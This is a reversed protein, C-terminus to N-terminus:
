PSPILRWDTMLFEPVYLGNSKIGLVQNDILVRNGGTTLDLMRLIGNTGGNDDIAVANSSPSWLFTGTVHQVQWMNKEEGTRSDSICFVSQAGMNGFYGIQKGDPSWRVDGGFQTNCYQPKILLRKNTLGNESIDGIWLEANAPYNRSGSYTLQSGNPSFRYSSGNGSVPGLFGNYLEEVLIRKGSLTNIYINDNQMLWFKGDPSPLLSGGAPSIQTVKGLPLDIRYLYAEKYPLALEVLITQDTLWVADPVYKTLQSYETSDLIKKPNDGDYRSVWLGEDNKYLLQEGSPSWSYAFYANPVQSIKNRDVDYIFVKSSSSVLIQSTRKVVPPRKYFTVFVLIGLALLLFLLVIKNRNKM